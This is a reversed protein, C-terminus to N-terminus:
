KQFAINIYQQMLISEFGLSDFGGCFGVPDGM